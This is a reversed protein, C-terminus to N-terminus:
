AAVDVLSQFWVQHVVGVAAVAVVAVVAVVVVVVAVDFRDCHAETVTKSRPGKQTPPIRKRVNQRNDDTAIPHVVYKTRKIQTTSCYM